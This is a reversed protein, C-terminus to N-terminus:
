SEFKKKNKTPLEQQKTTYNLEREFSHSFIVVEKAFLGIFSRSASDNRAAPLLLLGPKPTPKQKKIIVSMQILLSIYQILKPFLNMDSIPVVPRIGSQIKPATTPVAAMPKNLM